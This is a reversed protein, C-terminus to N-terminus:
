ETKFAITTGTSQRVFGRGIPTVLAPPALAGHFLDIINQAAAEPMDRIARDDNAAVHPSILVDDLALLPSDPRPPEYVLVDLGAGALHGSRLADVLDAEVVLGGRATNVLFAGPKMRALAARDIMGRTEPKLPLHLTVFDSRALLSELDTLEVGHARATAQEV